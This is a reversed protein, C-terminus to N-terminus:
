IIVGFIKAIEPVEKQQALLEFLNKEKQSLTRYNYFASSYVSVTQNSESDDTNFMSAM